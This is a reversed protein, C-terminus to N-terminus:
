LRVRLCAWQVMKQSSSWKKLFEGIINFGIFNRCFIELTVEGIRLARDEVDDVRGIYM